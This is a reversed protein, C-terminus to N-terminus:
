RKYISSNIILSFSVSARNSKLTSALSVFSKIKEQAPVDQQEILLQRLDEWVMVIVQCAPLQQHLHSGAHIWLKHHWQFRLNSGKQFWSGSSMEEGPIKCPTKPSLLSYFCSSKAPILTSKRTGPPILLKLRSLWLWCAKAAHDPHASPGAAGWGRLHSSCHWDLTNIESDKVKRLVLFCPQSYQLVLSGARHTALHAM